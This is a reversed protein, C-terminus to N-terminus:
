TVPVVSGTSPPATLAAIYAPDHALALQADEALPADYHTLAMDLGSAILRDNIAALRAPQEPHLHGMDHAACDPHSVYAIAM